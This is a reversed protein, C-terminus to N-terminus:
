PTLSIPQAPWSRSQNTDPRGLAIDPRQHREPAEGRAVSYSRGRDVRSKQGRTKLDLSEFTAAAAAGSYPAWLTDFATFVGSEYPWPPAAVGASHFTLRTNRNLWHM